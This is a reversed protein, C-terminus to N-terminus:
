REDIREGRLINPDQNLKTRLQGTLKDSINSCAVGYGATVSVTLIVLTLALVSHGQLIQKKVTLLQESKSFNGTSPSLQSEINM